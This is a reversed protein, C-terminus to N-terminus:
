REAFIDRLEGEYSIEYRFAYTTAPKKKVIEAGLEKLRRDVAKRRDDMQKQITFGSRAEEGEAVKFRIVFAKKAKKGTGPKGYLAFGTSDPGRHKLAQLMETLEGGINATDGRHILGAIGCM